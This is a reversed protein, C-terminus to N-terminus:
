KIIMSNEYIKIEQLDATEDAGEVVVAERVM